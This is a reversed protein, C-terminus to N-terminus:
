ICKLGCQSFPHASESDWHHDPLPQFTGCGYNRLQPVTWGHPELLHLIDYTKSADDRIHPLQTQQSAKVQAALQNVLTHRLVVVNHRWFRVSVATKVDDVLIPTLGRLVVPQVDLQLYARLELM